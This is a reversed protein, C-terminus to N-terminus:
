GDESIILGAITMCKECADLKEPNHKPIFKYGCLAVVFQGTARAVDVVDKATMGPQWIHVNAPPNIIHAKYERKPDMEEYEIIEDTTNDTIPALMVGM